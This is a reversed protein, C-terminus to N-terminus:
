RIRSNVFAHVIENIRKRSLNREACKQAIEKIYDMEGFVSYSEAQQSKKNLAMKESKERLFMRNAMDMKQGANYYDQALLEAKIRAKVAAIQEDHKEQEKLESVWLYTDLMDKNKKSVDSQELENVMENLNDNKYDYTEQWNQLLMKRERRGNIGSQRKTKGGSIFKLKKPYRCLAYVFKRILVIYFVASLFTELDASAVSEKRASVASRANHVKNANRTQKTNTVKNAKHKVSVDGQFLPESITPYFKM